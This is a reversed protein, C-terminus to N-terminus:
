NKGFGSSIDSMHLQSKKDNESLWTEDNWIVSVKENWYNLHRLGIYYEFCTLAKQEELWSLNATPPYVATSLPVNNTKRNQWRMSRKRGWSAWWPKQGWWHWYMRSSPHAPPSILSLFLRVNGNSSYDLTLGRHESPSSISIWAKGFTPCKQPEESGM